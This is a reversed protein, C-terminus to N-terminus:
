TEEKEYVSCDFAGVHCDGNAKFTAVTTEVERPLTLPVGQAVTPTTIVLIKNFPYIRVKMATPCYPQNAGGAAPDFECHYKAYVTYEGTWHREGALYPFPITVQDAGLTRPNNFDVRGSGSVLYCDDASSFPLGGDAKKIGFAAGGDIRTFGTTPIDTTTHCDFGGPGTVRVSITVGAFRLRSFEPDSERAYGVGIHAEWSMQQSFFLRDIAAQDAGSHEFQQAALDRLDRATWVSHGDRRYRPLATLLRKLGAQGGGLQRQILQYTVAGVRTESYQAYREDTKSALTPRAPASALNFYPKCGVFLLGGGEKLVVAAFANPFGESWALTPRTPYSRTADHDGGEPGDRAITYLVFHGYEHILPTPEWQADLGGVKGVEITSPPDFGIEPRSGVPGDHVHATLLPLQRPATVAAVRAARQLQILTNVHGNREEDNGVSFFLRGNM